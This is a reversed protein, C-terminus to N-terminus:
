KIVGRASAMAMIEEQNTEFYKKAYYLKETWYYAESLTCDEYGALCPGGETYHVAGIDAVDVRTESHDPIFNWGESISGIDDEALWFFQHLLRGDTCNVDEKSLSHNRPHTVDFFMLASWLKKNYAHQEVNDMKKASTPKFDHKVVSLAKDNAEAEKFAQIVDGTFIFDCDVFMVFRNEKNAWNHEELAPVLFRSHSFQTSFPRKDVEDIMQGTRGDTYFGRTFLGRERLDKHKMPIIEVPESAHELISFKCLEYFHSERDDFGIYIRRPTTM